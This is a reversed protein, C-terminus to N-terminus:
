PVFLCLLLHELINEEQLPPRPARLVSCSRSRTPQAVEEGCAADQVAKWARGWHWTTHQLM